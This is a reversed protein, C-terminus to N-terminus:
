FLGKRIEKGCNDCSGNKGLVEHAQIQGCHECHVFLEISNILLETEDKQTFKKTQQSIDM